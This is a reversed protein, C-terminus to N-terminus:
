KIWAIFAVAVFAIAAVVAFEYGISNPVFDTRGFPFPKVTDNKIRPHLWFDQDKTPSDEIGVFHLWYYYTESGGLSIPNVQYKPVTINFAIGPGTIDIKFNKGPPQVPGGACTAPPPSQTICIPSAGFKYGTNGMVFKVNTDTFSSSDKIKSRIHGDSDVVSFSSEKIITIKSNVKFEAPSVDSVKVELDLTNM